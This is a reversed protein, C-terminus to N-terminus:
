SSVTSLFRGALASSVPELGPGLLNWVGSLFWAWLQLKQLKHMYFRHEVVLSAVEVLPGLVVVVSYGRSVM